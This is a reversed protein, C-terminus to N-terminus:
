VKVVYQRAEQLFLLDRPTIYDISEPTTGQCSELAQLAQAYPLWIVQFGEEIEDETFNPEGKEGVVQAFYCYSIQRLFFIKRYEEIEGIEALVKVECGIEEECERQLTTPHDEDIEVGGGPLKYYDENSVHLLAIMGDDDVVVARVAERFHYAKVEEESANQPYILALEKM